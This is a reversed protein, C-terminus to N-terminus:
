SELTEAQIVVSVTGETKGKRSVSLRKVVVMNKSTEVGHLFRTLQDMTIQDLKMEVQSKKYPSDPLKVSSPKMYSIRDKVGATGALTDLFSFLTFGKERRSFYRVSRDAAGKLADFEQRLQRIETLDATKRQAMRELKGRQHFLPVIMFQILIFLLLIASGAYVVVQERRNLRQDMFRNFNTILENLM